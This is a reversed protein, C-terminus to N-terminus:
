ISGVPQCSELWVQLLRDPPHLCSNDIAAERAECTQKSSDGFIKAECWCIADLLAALAQGGPARTSFHVVKAADDLEHRLSACRLHKPM